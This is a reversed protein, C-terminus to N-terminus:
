GTADPGTERVPGAALALREAGLGINTGTGYAASGSLISGLAVTLWSALAQELDLDGTALLVATAVAGLVGLVVVAWGLGLLFAEVAHAREVRHMIRDHDTTAAREGV